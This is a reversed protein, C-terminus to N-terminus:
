HEVEGDSVAQSFLSDLDFVNAKYAETKIASDFQEAAVLAQVHGQCEYDVTDYQKNIVKFQKELNGAAYDVQVSFNDTEYITETM